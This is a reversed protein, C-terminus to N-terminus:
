TTSKFDDLEKQAGEAYAQEKTLKLQYDRLQEQLEM